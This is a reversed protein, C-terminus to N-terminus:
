YFKKTSAENVLCCSFVFKVDIQIHQIPYEIQEYPKPLYKPNRPKIAMLSQKRLFRYLGPITRTYGHQMLKVWFVILGVDPNCLRMDNILKIEEPTHQNPHHHPKRFKDRLSDWSGDFRRKCRYIYQRNTKYKITAAVGHKGAFRILSLRFRMDKTISAM